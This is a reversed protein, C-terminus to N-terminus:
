HVKEKNGNEAHVEEKVHNGEKELKNKIRKKWYEHEAGAIKKSGNLGKEKLYVSGKETLSLLKKRVVGETVQEEILFGELILKKKILNGERYNLGLNKYHQTVSLFLNEAIEILLLDQENRNKLASPTLIAKNSIGQFSGPEALAPFKIQFRSFYAKEMHQKLLSDTIDAKIKVLPFKVMFSEPYNGKMNVIATGIPLKALYDWEQFQLSMSSALVEIDKRYRQNLAIITYSNQLATTNMKSVEQAIFFLGVGLERFERIIKPVINGSKMEEKGILLLNQAEEIIIMHELKESKPLSLKHFYIWLLLAQTLFVKNSPSLYDLEVIVNRQLLEELSMPNKIVNISEALTSHTLSYLVRACSQMWLMERGRKQGKSLIIRAVDRFTPYEQCTGSYVGFDEYAQDIGKEMLTLAGEGIFFSYGITACLMEKWIKPEINMPPILPNLYFPSPKSGPTFVLVDQDRSILTRYNKKWDFILFPIKNKKLQELFKFAMNTKGSGSRGLICTHMLLEDNSIGFPFLTRENYVVDGLLNESSMFESPPPTLLIKKDFDHGLLKYCLLRVNDEFAKQLKKNSLSNYKYLLINAKEQGIVPALKRTMLDIPLMKRFVLMQGKGLQM